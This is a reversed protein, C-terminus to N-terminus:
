GAMPAVHEDAPLIPRGAHPRDSRIRRGASQVHDRGSGDRSLQTPRRQAEDRRAPLERLVRTAEAEVVGPKPVAVAYDRFDPM